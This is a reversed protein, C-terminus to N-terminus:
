KKRGKRSGSEGSTSSSKGLSSSSAFSSGTSPFGFGVPQAQTSGTTALDLAAVSTSPTSNFSGFNGFLQGSASPPMNFGASMAPAQFAGNSQVISSSNGVFPSSTGNLHAPVQTVVTTKALKNTELKLKEEVDAKKKIESKDAREFPNCNAKNFYRLFHQKLINTNHHVDYVEKAIIAFAEAQQKMLNLLQTPGVKLIQGYSGKLSNENSGFDGGYFSNLAKARAVLQKEFYKITSVCQILRRELSEAVTLYLPDPLQEDLLVVRGGAIGGGRSKIQSLGTTSSTKFERYLPRIEELLSSIKAHMQQQAVEINSVLLRLNELKDRWDLMLTGKHRKIKELQARLPTKFEKYITDVEVKYAVPLDQYKTDRQIEDIKAPAVGLSIASSNSVTPANTFSSGMQKTQNNGFSSGFGFTSTTPPNTFSATPNAGFNTSMNNSGFAPTVSSPMTGFAGTGPTASGFPSSSAAAGFTLNTGFGSGSAPVTSGFAPASNPAAGFASSTGFSTTNKGFPSSSGFTSSGFGGLLSTGGFTSTSGLGPNANKNSFSFTTSM